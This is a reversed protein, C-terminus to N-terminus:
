FPLWAGSVAGWALEKLDLRSTAKSLSLKGSLRLHGEKRDKRHELAEAQQMATAGLSHLDTQTNQSLALESIAINDLDIHIDVQDSDKSPFNCQDHNRDRRIRILRSLGELHISYDGIM